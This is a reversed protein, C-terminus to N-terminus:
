RNDKVYKKLLDPGILQERDTLPDKFTPKGLMAHVDELSKSRELVVEGNKKIRFVARDGPHLDLADRVEKPITVQGKSTLMHSRTM